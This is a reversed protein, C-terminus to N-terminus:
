SRPLKDITSVSAPGSYKPKKLKPNKFLPTRKLYLKFAQWYIGGAVKLTMLPYRWLLSNLLFPTIKRRRLFLSANFQRVGQIHNEMYIVARRGPVNNTWHYEMNMPMFPSVHHAKGFKSRTLSSNSNAPIVYSHRERWPTNTVEAVVYELNEQKDYCYYCTIPNMIFGFYRMNTLVRIPGETTNGTFEKVRDRVAKQLPVEPDGLYDKRQFSALNISGSSWFTTKDFLNDLEDLDLFMMFVRYSFKHEHPLFRCHTVLGEYVASQVDAIPAKHKNTLSMM